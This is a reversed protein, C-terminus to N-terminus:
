NPEEVMKILRSRTKPADTWESNVKDDKLFVESKMAQYDAKSNYFNIVEGFSAKEIIIGNYKTIM